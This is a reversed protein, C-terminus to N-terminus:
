TGPKLAAAFFDRTLGIAEAEWDLRSFTHDAEAVLHLQCRGGLAVRYDSAHSAPVTEDNAGHVVLSPGMYSRVSELPKINPLDDLFALGLGWGNMDLIKGRFETALRECLPELHAVAAWLALAKLRPEKGALSAAVAGGMSLGLLGLRNEDTEARAALFDLAAAADEIERSITMESFDGESDGSGRFDFRLVVLGQKCLERAAKVFLRHTEAKHGTFGHCMILGPAPTAPPLHLIGVVQQDGSSFTVPFEM